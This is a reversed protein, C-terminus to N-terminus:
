YVEMLNQKSNKLCFNLINNVFKNENLIIIETFPNEKNISDILETGFSLTIIKVNEFDLIISNCDKLDDAIMSFIERGLLRSSLITGHNELKLLM